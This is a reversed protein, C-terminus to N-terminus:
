NSLPRLPFRLLQLPRQSSAIDDHEKATGEWLKHPKIIAKHGTPIGATHKANSSDLHAADFVEMFLNQILMNYAHFYSIDGFTFVRACPLQM